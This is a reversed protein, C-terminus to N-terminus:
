DLRTFFPILLYIPLRPPLTDPESLSSYLAADAVLPDDEDLDIPETRPPAEKGEEEELDIPEIRPPADQPRESNLWLDILSRRSM